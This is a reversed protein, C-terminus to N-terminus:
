VPFKVVVDQGILTADIDGWLVEETTGDEGTAVVVLGGTVRTVEFGALEDGRFEPPQLKCLKHAFVDFAAGHALLVFGVCVGGDRWEGWDLGVGRAGELLDGTVQDGVERSGRAEIGQQDHNVMAKCLPYNEAGCLFGDSGLSYSGEKEVFDVEVEPEVVFDDRITAWLEGGSEGLLKAFEEVVVEREGGGIVWLGVAFCFTDVM